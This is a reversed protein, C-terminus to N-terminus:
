EPAYDNVGTFSVLAIGPPKRPYSTSKQPQLRLFARLGNERHAYHPTITFLATYASKNQVVYYPKLTFTFGTVKKQKKNKTKRNKEETKDALLQGFLLHLGNFNSYALLEFIWVRCFVSM